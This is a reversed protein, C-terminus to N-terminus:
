AALPKATVLQDAPLSEGNLLRQVIRTSAPDADLTSTVDVALINFDISQDVRLMGRISAIGETPKDPDAAFNMADDGASGYQNIWSCITGADASHRTKGNVAHEFNAESVGKLRITASYPSTLASRDAMVLLKYARGQPVKLPISATFTKVETRTVAQTETWSYAYEFSLTTESSLEILKIKGKAVIKESLSSKVSHTQSKTTAVTNTVQWSLSNTAPSDNLLGARNDLTTSLALDKTRNVNAQGPEFVLDTVLVDSLGGFLGASNDPGQRFWRGAVPDSETQLRNQWADILYAGIVNTELYHLTM